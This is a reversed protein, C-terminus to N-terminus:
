PLNVQSPYAYIAPALVGISRCGEAFDTQEDVVGDIVPSDTVSPGDVQRRSVDTGERYSWTTHNDNIGDANAFPSGGDVLADILRGQGDYGLTWRSFVATPNATLREEVVTRLGAADYSMTQTSGVSGDNLNAGLVRDLRGSPSYEYTALLTTPASPSQGGPRTEVSTLRGNSDYRNVYEVDLSLAAYVLRSLRGHSDYTYDHRWVVAGSQSEQRWMALGNQDLASEFTGSISGPTAVVPEYHESLIRTDARYTYRWALRNDTATCIADRSLVDALLFTPGQASGCGLMSLLSGFVTSSLISPFCLHRM